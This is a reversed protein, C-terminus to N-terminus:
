EGAIPKSVEGIKAIQGLIYGFVDKFYHFNKNLCLTDEEM